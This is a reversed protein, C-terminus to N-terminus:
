DSPKLLEGLRGVLRMDGDIRIRRSLFAGMPSMRGTVIAVGDSANMSIWCDAREPSGTNLTGKGARLTVYFAGGGEGRLAFAFTCDRGASTGTRLRYDVTAM